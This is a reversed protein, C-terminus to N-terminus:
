QTSEEFDHEVLSVLTQVAEETDPGNSAQITIEDGQEAGLSLIEISSKGNVMEDEGVKSVDIEAEFDSAMQVFVSGPRAHLGKEHHLTVRDQAESM